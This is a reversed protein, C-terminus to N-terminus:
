CFLQVCRLCCGYSACLRWVFSIFITSLKHELMWASGGRTDQAMTALCFYICFCVGFFCQHVSKLFPDSKQTAPGKPCRCCASQHERCRVARCCCLCIVGSFQFCWGPLKEAFPQMDRTGAKTPSSNEDCILLKWKQATLGFVHSPASLGILCHGSLVRIGLPLHFLRGRILACPGRWAKAQSSFQCALFRVQNFALAGTTEARMAMLLATGGSNFYYSAMTQGQHM